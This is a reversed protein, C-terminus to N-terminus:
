AYSRVAPDVQSVGNVYDWYAETVWGNELISWVHVVGAIVKSDM